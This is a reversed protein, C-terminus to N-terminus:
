QTARVANKIVRKPANEGLPLKRQPCTVCQGVCQGKKDCDYDCIQKRGCSKTCGSHGGGGPKLDGGCVTAVQQQTLKVLVTKASANEPSLALVFTFALGLGALLMLVKRM